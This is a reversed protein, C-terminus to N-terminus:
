RTHMEWCPQKPDDNHVIVDAHDVPSAAAVYLDRAPLYRERWRRRVDVASLARQERVVARDVITDPPSTVFVRLEWQAILEPRLLFVGDFVLVADASATVITPSLVSDTAHDYVAHQFCGDGGPGLPDLLVRNVADHDHADFYCGEPSYEGRRYRLARPVLFDDISARVVDRGRTRLVGALEGALTTKGAGPPGDVAVRTRYGIKISEVATALSGLMEARTGRHM